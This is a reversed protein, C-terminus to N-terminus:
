GEVIMAPGTNEREDFEEATERLEEEIPIATMLEDFGLGEEKLTAKEIEIAIQRQQELHYRDQDYLVDDPNKLDFYMKKGVSGRRNKEFMAYPAGEEDFRLEMMGTTNHKLKNSGVFTGGKNIQQICLFSTYKHADNEGKNQRKMLDILYKETAGTSMHCAEKITDQVEIFSDILIIDYGRGFVEELILKPNEDLYENMFLIDLNGFKPYRQVYNYLDIRDMEASVFLAKFGATELDSIIDMTVTSKGVGPDGIVMFNVARPLGGDTSLLIDIPKGTKMIKFLEPDFNLDNMKVTEPRVALLNPLEPLVNTEGGGFRAAAGKQGAIRLKNKTEESM